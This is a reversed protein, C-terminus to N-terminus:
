ALIEESWIKKSTDKPINVNTTKTVSHVLQETKGLVAAEDYDDEKEYANLKNSQLYGM